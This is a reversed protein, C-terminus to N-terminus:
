CLIHEEKQWNIECWWWWWWVFDFSPCTQFESVVARGVGRTHMCAGDAICVMGSASMIGWGRV